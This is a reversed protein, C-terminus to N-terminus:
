KLTIFDGHAQMYDNLIKEAIELSPVLPNLNLARLAKNYDQEMAAEVTLTEYAAVLQMLGLMDPSPRDVHMPRVGRKDILCPIEVCAEPDMGPVCGQNIVNVIYEEGTDNHIASLIGVMLESHWQGGRSKWLHADEHRAVEEFHALLEKEIGQVVEGRTKEAALQEQLCERTLYYYQLYSSPIVGTKKFIRLMMESEHLTKEDDGPLMALIDTKEAMDELMPMIDKGAVFVKRFWGLHNLGVYDLKVQERPLKLLSAIFHQVGIPVDCISVANIDTYKALMAAVMGSPNSYNILWAEPAYKKIDQAIAYMEPLTRLAMAFGGPGVTEQGIVEYKLPIKEDLVRGALGGVRIQCLIFATDCIAAIRDATATVRVEPLAESVMKRVIATVTQLKTEDIDMLCLENFPVDRHIKILGEVLGPTYASGGGIVSIKM